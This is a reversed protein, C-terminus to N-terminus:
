ATAERTPLFPLRAGDAAKDDPDILIGIKVSGTGAAQGEAAAFLDAKDAIDGTVEVMATGPANDLRVTVPDGADVREGETTGIGLDSATAYVVQKSTTGFKVRRYPELATEATAHIRGNEVRAM